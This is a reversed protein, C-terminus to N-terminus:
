VPPPDEWRRGIDHASADTVTTLLEGASQDYGPTAAALLAEEGQEATLAPPVVLIRLVSRDSMSLLIMHTDDRPFSGAKIYGRATPVRRNLLPEWDPTSYVARSISGRDVPFHDVLSGLETALDRTHPWWGGDLRGTRAQPTLRLRPQSARSMNSTAM